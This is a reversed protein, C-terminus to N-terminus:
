ERIINISSFITSVIKLDIDHTCCHFHVVIPLLGQMNDISTVVLGYNEKELIVM